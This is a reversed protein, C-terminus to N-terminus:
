QFYEVIRVDDEEWLVRFPRSQDVDKAFAVCVRNNWKVRIPWAGVSLRQNLEADSAFEGTISYEKIGLFKLGRIATRVPQPLSDNGAEPTLSKNINPLSIKVARVFDAIVIVMIAILVISRIVLYLQKRQISFQEM